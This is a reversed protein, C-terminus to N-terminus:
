RRSAPSRGSTSPRRRGSSRAPRPTTSLPPKRGSTPFSRGTRTPRSGRSRWTPRRDRGRWAPCPAGQRRGGLLDAEPKATARRSVTTSKGPAPKAAAPRRPRRPPPRATRRGRRRAGERRRLSLGPLPCLAVIAAAVCIARSRALRRGQEICWCTTFRPDALRELVQHPLRGSRMRDRWRFVETMTIYRSRGATFKLGRRRLPGPWAVRAARVPRPGAAGRNAQAARGVVGSRLRRRRQRGRHDGAGGSQSTMM